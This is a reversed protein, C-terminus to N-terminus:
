FAGGQGEKAERHPIKENRRGLVSRGFRSNSWFAAKQFSGSIWRSEMPVRFAILKRNTDMNIGTAKRVGRQRGDPYWKFESLKRTDKASQCSSPVM